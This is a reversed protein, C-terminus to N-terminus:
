ENGQKPDEGKNPDPDVPDKPTAKAAKALGRDILDQAEKKPLSVSTGPPHAKRDEGKGTYLTTHSNIHMNAAPM